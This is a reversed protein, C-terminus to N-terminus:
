GWRRARNAGLFNAREIVYLGTLYSRVILPVGMMHVLCGRLCWNKCLKLLGRLFM